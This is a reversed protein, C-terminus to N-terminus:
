CREPAVLSGVQGKEEAMTQKVEQIQVTLFENREDEDAFQQARGQQAHLQGLKQESLALSEKLETYALQKEEFLPGM